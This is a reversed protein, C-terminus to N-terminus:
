DAVWCNNFGAELVALLHLVVPVADCQYVLYHLKLQLLMHMKNVLSM